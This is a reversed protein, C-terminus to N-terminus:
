RSSDLTTADFATPPLQGVPPVSARHRDAMGTSTGPRVTVWRASTAVVAGPAVTVNVVVTTLVPSTAYEPRVTVPGIAPMRSSAVYSLSTLAVPPTTSTAPPTSVQVPLRAAPARTVM